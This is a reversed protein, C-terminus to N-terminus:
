IITKRRNFLPERENQEFICEQKINQFLISINFFFSPITYQQFCRSVFSGVREYARKPEDGVHHCQYLRRKDGM